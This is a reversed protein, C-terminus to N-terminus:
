RPSESFGKKRTGAMACGRPVNWLFSNWVRTLASDIGSLSTLVVPCCSSSASFCSAFLCSIIQHSTGHNVSKTRGEEELCTDHREKEVKQMKGLKM